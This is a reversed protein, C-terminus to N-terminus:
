DWWCAVPSTGAPVSCAEFKTGETWGRWCDDPRVDGGFWSAVEEPSARTIVWVTDSFPWGEPDDFMTIQVRVDAVEPRSAIEQLLSRFEAPEPTPNLNCGISGTYFNGEFFEALTLLPRPTEAVNPDGHRRVRETIRELPTM